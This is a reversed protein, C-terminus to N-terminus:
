FLLNRNISFICMRSGFASAGALLATDADWVRYKFFCTAYVFLSLPLILNITGCLVRCGFIVSVLVKLIKLGFIHRGYNKLIERSVQKVLSTSVHITSGTQVLIVTKQLLVEQVSDDCLM